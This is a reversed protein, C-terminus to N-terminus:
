RDSIAPSPIADAVVFRKPKRGHGNSQQLEARGLQGQHSGCRESGCTDCPVRPVRRAAMARCVRVPCRRARTEFCAHASHCFCWVISILSFCKLRTLGSARLYRASCISRNKSLASTSSRSPNRAVAFGSATAKVCNPDTSKIGRERSPCGRLLGMSRISGTSRGTREVRGPLETPLAASQFDAHRCNLEARAM